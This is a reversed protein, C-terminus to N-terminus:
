FEIQIRNEVLDVRGEGEVDARVYNFALKVHNDVYWNIGYISTDLVGGEVAGDTLDLTDYRVALEWAGSGSSGRFPQDPKPRGLFGGTENYPRIEGTILWAMEAYWSSFRPDGDDAEVDARVWEGDITVPGALVAWELGTLVAEDAEVDGTDVLVPAIRSGPRGKARFPASLTQLSASAGLHLLRSKDGSLLPLATVRGTTHYGDNSVLRGTEDTDRFVGASVTARKDALTRDFCVGMNYVPTFSTVGAKEMFHLHNNSMLESMSFPEIMHGVRVRGLLPLGRLGVFVSQPTAKGGTFDYELSFESAPGVTGGLGLRVRRFDVGDEFVPEETKLDEDVRDYGVADAQIRGSLKLAVDHKENVIRLGDRWELRVDNEPAAAAAELKRVREELTVTSSSEQARGASLASSLLLPFLVNFLRM